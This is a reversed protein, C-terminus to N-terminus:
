RREGFTDLVDQDYENAWVSDYVFDGGETLVSVGTVSSLKEVEKYIDSKRINIEMANGKEVFFAIFIHPTVINRPKVM